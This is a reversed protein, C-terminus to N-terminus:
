VLGTAEADDFGREMLYKRLKGRSRHLNVRVAADRLGLAKAIDSTKEGYFYFRILMEREAETLAELGHLMCTIAETKEADGCLDHTDALVLEELSQRIPTHKGMARFRNKVHNRAVAALYPSIPLEPNLRERSKWLSIFVDATIEEMDEISLRGKSFNRIITYVYGTRRRIIEQLVAEDGAILAATWNQEM